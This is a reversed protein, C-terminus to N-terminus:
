LVLRLYQLIFRLYDLFADGMATNPQTGAPRDHPRALNECVATLQNSGRLVGNSVRM